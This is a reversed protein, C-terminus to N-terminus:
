MNKGLYCKFGDGHGKASQGVKYHWLPCWLEMSEGSGGEGSGGFAGGAHWFDRLLRALQGGELAAVAVIEALRRSQVDRLVAAEDVGPVDPRWRRQWGFPVLVPECVQSPVGSIETM